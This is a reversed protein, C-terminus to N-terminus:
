YNLNEVKEFFDFADIPNLMQLSEFIDDIKRHLEQQNKTRKMYAYDLPMIDISLFKKQSNRGLAIERGFIKNAVWTYDPYFAKLLSSNSNIIPDFTVSSILPSTVSLDINYPVGRCVGKYMFKAIIDFLNSDLLNDKTQTFYRSIFRQLVSM